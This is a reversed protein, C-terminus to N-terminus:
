YSSPPDSYINVTYVRGRQEALRRTYGRTHWCSSTPAATFIRGSMPTTDMSSVSAPFQSAQGIAHYSRVNGGPILTDRRKTLAFNRVIVGHSVGLIQVKVFSAREFIKNRSLARHSSLLQCVLQNRCLFITTSLKSLIRSM